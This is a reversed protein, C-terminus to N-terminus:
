RVSTVETGFDVGKIGGRTWRYHGFFTETPAGTSTPPEYQYPVYNIVTPGADPLNAQWGAGSDATRREVVSGDFFLLPQSADPHAFFLPRGHHRQHTDHLHVKLSPFAVEDFRAGRFRTGSDIGYIYHSATSQRLRDPPRSRDYTAPPTEYSSSYPKAHMLGAEFGTFAPQETGFVGANFGPIDRQWLRLPRDEPCAAIPVPLDTALYDLLVLHSYEIGPHWLWVIAFNPESPSRRRIIETGQVAFASSAFIGGPPILDPYTTPTNGSSWSFMYVRDQFDVAYAAAGTALQKLNARCVTARGAKRAAALGPLLLGILLAIVAIVVLLEILTFARPRSSADISEPSPRVTDPM